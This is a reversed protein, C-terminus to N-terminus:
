CLSKRRWAERFAAELSRTFAAVDGLTTELQTRMGHRITALRERDQSLGVALRIYEESSGAVWGALGCHYLISSTVRSVFSTGLKTIVPVGMWLAECSTTGGNYPFPDLAIDIEAYGALNEERSRHRLLHIRRADTGYQAFRRIFRRRAAEDDPGYLVLQSGPTLELIASWVLAVEDNVKLANNFCGFTIRGANLAPPPVPDPAKDHRFALYGKELRLIQESYGPTGTRPCVVDDAILYDMAALGTTNFYGLWSMQVPAPKRAFVGLRHGATLGSLDVLIDIQDRSIMNSVREDGVGHIRRWKGAVTRCRHTWGDEMASNSYCFVQVRERDHAALVPQVLYAVSHARFDASVYGVRLIREGERVNPHSVPQATGPYFRAAWKRHAAVHEVPDTKQSYHMCFLRRMEVDELDPKLAFTRSYFELAEDIEGMEFLSNAVALHLDYRSRGMRFARILAPIAESARGQRILAVGLTLLFDANDPFKESVKRALREVEEFRQLHRLATCLNLTAALCDPDAELAKRAARAAKAFERRFILQQSLNTFAEPSHPTVCM